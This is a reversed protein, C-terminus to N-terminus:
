VASGAPQLPIVESLAAAQVTAEAVPQGGTLADLERRLSETEETLVSVQLKLLTTRRLAAVAIFPTVVILAVLVFGWFLLSDM